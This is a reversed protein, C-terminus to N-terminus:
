LSFFPIHKFGITESVTQVFHKVQVDRPTSKNQM